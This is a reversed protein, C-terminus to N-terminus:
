QLIMEQEVLVLVKLREVVGQVELVVLSFLLLTTPYVEEVVV